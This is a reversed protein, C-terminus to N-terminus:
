GSCKGYRSFSGMAFEEDLGAALLQVHAQQRLLTIQREMVGNQQPTDPAMKEM